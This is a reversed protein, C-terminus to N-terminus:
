LTVQGNEKRNFENRNEMMWRIYSNAYPPAKWDGYGSPLTAANDKPVRNGHKRFIARQQVQNILVVKPVLDLEPKLDTRCLSRHITAPLILVRPSLRKLDARIYATQEKFKKWDRAYDLNVKKEFKSPDICFKGPNAVAIEELFSRPTCSFQDRYGLEEIIHRAVKLLGGNNIPEIHVDHQKGGDLWARRSRCMAAANRLGVVQGPNSLNEASAYVLVKPRGSEGFASGVFPIPPPVPYAWWPAVAQKNEARYAQEIEQYRRLLDKELQNLEVDVGMDETKKKHQTHHHGENAQ